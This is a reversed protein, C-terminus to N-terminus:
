FITGLCHEWRHNCICKQFTPTIVESLGCRWLLSSFLPLFDGLDVIESIERSIFCLGTVIKIKKNTPDQYSHHIKYCKLKSQEWRRRGATWLPRSFLLRVVVTDTFVLLSTGTSSACLKPDGLFDWEWFNIMIQSPQCCEPFVDNMPNAKIHGLTASM